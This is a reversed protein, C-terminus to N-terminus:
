ISIRSKYYNLYLSFLILDNQLSSKLNKLMQLIVAAKLNQNLFELTEKVIQNFVQIKIQQNKRQKHNKNKNIQNEMIKTYAVEQLIKLLYQHLKKNKNNKIKFNFIM